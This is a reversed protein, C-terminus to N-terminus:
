TAPMSKLVLVVTVLASTLPLVRVVSEPSSIEYSFSM